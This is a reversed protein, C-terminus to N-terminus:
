WSDIKIIEDCLCSHICTCDGSSCKMITHDIVINCSMCVLYSELQDYKEEQELRQKTDNWSKEIVAQQSSTPHELMNQEGIVKYLDELVDMYEWDDANLRCKHISVEGDESMILDYILESNLALDGTTFTFGNTWSREKHQNILYIYM